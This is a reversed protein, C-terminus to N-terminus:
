PPAARLATPRRPRPGADVMRPGPPHARLGAPHGVLHALVLHHARRVSPETSRPSPTDDNADMREQTSPSSSWALSAGGPSTGRRAPPRARPTQAAGTGGGTRRVARVALTCRACRSGAAAGRPAPVRSSGDGAGTAPGPRTAPGPPPPARDRSAAGGSRCSRSPAPRRVPAPRRNRSEARCARCTSPSRPTPASPAPRGAPRTRGAAGTSARGLAEGDGGGGAEQQRHGPGVVLRQPPGQGLEIRGQTGAFGDPEVHVCGGM